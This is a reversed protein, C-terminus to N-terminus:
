TSKFQLAEDGRVPLAIRMDALTNLMAFFREGLHKRNPMGGSHEIFEARNDHITL